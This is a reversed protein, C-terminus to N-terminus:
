RVQNNKSPPFEKDGYNKAYYAAYASDWDTRLVRDRLEEVKDDFKKHLNNGSRAFCGQPRVQADETIEHFGQGLGRTFLGTVTGQSLSQIRLVILNTEASPGDGTRYTGSLFTGAVAANALSPVVISSVERAHVSEEQFVRELAESLAIEQPTQESSM